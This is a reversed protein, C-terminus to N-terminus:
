GRLRHRQARPVLMSTAVRRLEPNDSALCLPHLALILEGAGTEGWFWDALQRPSAAGGPRASAAETYWTRLDECAFRLAKGLDEDAVAGARGRTRIEDLLRAADDVALGSVLAMSEGYAEVFVEHWPTLRDIEGLIRALADPRGASAPAPFSVPCVLGATADDGSQAPADDPFDELIVTADTRELLALAAQVVRIQFGPENPTGFPRGLEFPVWLARPPRILETNERVLSIGTTPVGEDELYHAIAGM